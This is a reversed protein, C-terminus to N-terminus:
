FDEFVDMNVDIDGEGASKMLKMIAGPNMDDGLIRAVAFGKEEHVGYLIFEDIADEEGLYMLRVGKGVSGMRFLLKYKEDKFIHDVTEKEKEFEEKNKETIPFALVNAKEISGLAKQQEENLSSNSGLFLSSPVDIVVFNVNEQKEVYYKQLSPESNCALALFAIASALSIKIINKM